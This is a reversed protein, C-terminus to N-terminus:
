GVKATQWKGDTGFGSRVYIWIPEVGSIFGFEYEEDDPSFVVAGKPIVVFAAFETTRRGCEICEYEQGDIAVSAGFELALWAALSLSGELPTKTGDLNCGQSCEEGARPLATPTGFEGVFQWKM